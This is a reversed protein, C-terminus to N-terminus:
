DDKGRGKHKDNKKEKKEYKDHKDYRDEKGWSDKDKRGRRVEDNIVVFNKGASRMRMVKEPAYGYRESILRLNVLNIVDDDDLVVKKKHKNKYHGYAHGYPPGYVERVPVYYIEPDLGFHLTIDMWSRGRLRYDIIVAPAVRARKAIYLVVPIEYDPIRRERIVIVEREPVHYYEGIALYFSRIGSNGISIGVDTRTEAQGAISLLSLFIGLLLNMRAHM